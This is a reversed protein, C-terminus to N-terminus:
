STTQCHISLAYLILTVIRRTKSTVDKWRWHQNEWTIAGASYGKRLDHINVLGINNTTADKEDLFSAVADGMTMLPKEKVLFVVSFM